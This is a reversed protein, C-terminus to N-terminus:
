HRRRAKDACPEQETVALGAMEEKARAIAKELEGKPIMPGYKMHLNKVIDRKIEQPIPELFRTPQGRELLIMKVPLFGELLRNAKLFVKKTANFNQPNIMRAVEEPKIGGFKKEKRLQLPIGGHQISHRLQFVLKLAKNMDEIKQKPIRKERAAMFARNGIAELVKAYDLEDIGTKCEGYHSFRILSKNCILEVYLRLWASFNHCEQYARKEANLADRKEGTFPAIEEPIAKEFYEVHSLLDGINNLGRLVIFVNDEINADM